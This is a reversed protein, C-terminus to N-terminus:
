NQYKMHIKCEKIQPWIGVIKNDKAKYHHFEWVNEFYDDCQMKDPQIDLNPNSDYVPVKVKKGNEEVVKYGLLKGTETNKAAFNNDKTIGKKLVQNEQKTNKEGEIATPENCSYVVFLTLLITAIFLFVYRERM